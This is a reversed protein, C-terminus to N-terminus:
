NTLSANWVTYDGQDSWTVLLPDQPGPAPNGPAPMSGYAMVIEAPMTVFLGQNKQPATAVVAARVGTGPPNWSFIPQLSPCALLVQGFNDASWIQLAFPVGGSSVAGPSYGAIPTIDYLIGASEVFLNSNTGAALWATQALDTWWHLARCVGSLATNCIRSWGGRKEPRGARWRILNSLSWGRNNATPTLEVNVGPLWELRKDPM